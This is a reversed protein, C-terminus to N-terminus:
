ANVLYAGAMLVMVAATRRSLHSEAFLRGGLLTAFLVSLRKVALVLAVAPGVQVSAIQTYRYVVTCVAVLLIWGGSSRVGDRVASPRRPGALHVVAFFALSFLSSFCVFPLPAVGLKVVIVKDLVSSVTLLALAILV